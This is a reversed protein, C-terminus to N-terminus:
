RHILLRTAATGAPTNVRVFYIGSAVQTGRDDAGNWRLAFENAYVWEDMLSAVKRGSIDFVTVLARGPEPMSFSITSQLGAPNPFVRLALRDVPTPDVAIISNCGQGLAGVLSGCPSAGPLCPSDSRLAFNCDLVGCFFPDASFTGGAPYNIIPINGDANNWLDTCQVNILTTDDMSDIGRGVGSGEVITRLIEGNPPLIGWFYIGKGASGTVTCNVVHAESNHGISVAADTSDAGAGTGAIVCNRFEVYKGNQIRVGSNVANKIQTDQVVLLATNDTVIGADDGDFSCYRVRTTDPGEGQVNLAELFNGSFTCSDINVESFRAWIGSGMTGAENGVFDCSEISANSSNQLRIGGADSVGGPKRNNTFTCREVTISANLPASIGRHSGDEFVCDEIVASSNSLGIAPDVFGVFQCDRIVPSAGTIDIVGAVLSAGARRGNTFKIREIVSQSTQGSDLLFAFSTDALDITTSNSGFESTIVLNRGDFDLERNDAGTFMGPGMMITDGDAAAAFAPALSTYDGLGQQKVFITDAKSAGPVLCLLISLILLNRM